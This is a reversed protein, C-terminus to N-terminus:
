LIVVSKRMNNREAAARQNKVLSYAVTKPTYLGVHAIPSLSKLATTMTPRNPVRHRLAENGTALETYSWM